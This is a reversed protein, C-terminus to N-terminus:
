DVRPRGWREALQGHEARFVGVCAYTISLRQPLAQERRLGSSEFALDTGAVDLGRLVVTSPGDAARGDTRHEQEVTLPLSGEGFLRYAARERNDDFVDELTFRIDVGPASLLRVQAEVGARRDLGEGVLVGPLVLPDRDVFAQHFVSGIVSRDKGNLVRDVYAEVLEAPRTM